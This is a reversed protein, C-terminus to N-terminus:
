LAGWIIKAVHRVKESQLAAWILGSFGTMWATFKGATVLCGRWYAAREKAKIITADRFDFLEALHEQHKGCPLSRIQDHLTQNADEWRKEFQRFTAVDLPESM